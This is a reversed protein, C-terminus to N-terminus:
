VVGSKRLVAVRAEDCGIERLVEDTHEGLV